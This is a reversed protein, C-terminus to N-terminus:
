EASPCVPAHDCRCSAGREMATFSAVPLALWGHFGCIDEGLYSM